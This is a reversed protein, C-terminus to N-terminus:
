RDQSLVLPGQSHKIVVNTNNLRRQSNRQKQIEIILNIRQNSNGVSLICASSMTPTHLSWLTRRWKLIEGLSIVSKGFSLPYIHSSKELPRYLTRNDIWWCLHIIKEWSLMVPFLFNSFGLWLVLDNCHLLHRFAALIPALGANASLLQRKTLTNQQLIRM